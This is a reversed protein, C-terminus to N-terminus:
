MAGMTPSVMADPQGMKRLWRFHSTVGALFSGHDNYQVGHKACAKKVLRALRPYHKHCIRPFLHHEVQYNLGGLYWTLIRSHRSFNVTTEIQHVAWENEMRGTALDPAPFQAPQVAHALQFVVSLMIGVFCSVLAYTILATGIPHFLMPVVFALSLFFIKGCIFIALARGKPRKFPHTGVRGTIVDRFDDILQWKITLMAYLAWMYIHQLRHFGLRKQQPSFRGLIGVDIDDDHEAINPYTHHLTNHKHDWIYSSGGGFFDLSSAMLRNIWRHRSYARHGGDHQINFGVAAISLGLSIALPITQWWANSVFVLLIYSTAVWCMIILSKFYTQPCDRPKLGSMKFYRSVRAKVDHYFPDDSKFKIPPTNAPSIDTATSSPKLAVNQM